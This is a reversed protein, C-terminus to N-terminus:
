CFFGKINVGVVDISMPGIVEIYFFSLFTKLLKFVPQALLISEDTV